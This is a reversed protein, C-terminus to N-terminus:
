PGPPGLGPGPITLVLTTKVAGESFSLRLEGLAHRAVEPLAGVLGLVLAAERGQFRRPTDGLRLEVPPVDAARLGAGRSV